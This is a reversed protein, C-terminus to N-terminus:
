VCRLRQGLPGGTVFKSIKVPDLNVGPWLREAISEDITKEPIPESTIKSFLQGIGGNKNQLNTTLGWEPDPEQGYKVIWIDLLRHAQSYGVENLRYALVDARRTMEEVVNKNLYAKIVEEKTLESPLTQLWGLQSFLYTMVRDPKITKLGLDMMTHMATLMGVDKVFKARVKALMEREKVWAAGTLHEANFTYGETYHHLAPENGAQRHRHLTRAVHLYKKIKPSWASFKLGPYTAEDKILMKWVEPTTKKFHAAPKWEPAVKARQLWVTKGYREKWPRVFQEWEAQDFIFRAENYNDLSKFLPVLAAMSDIETTAKAALTGAYVVRQWLVRWLDDHSMNPQFVVDGMLKTIKSNLKEQNARHVTASDAATAHNTVATCIAKILATGYNYIEANIAANTRM